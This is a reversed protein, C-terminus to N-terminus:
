MSWWIVTKKGQSKTSYKIQIKFFLKDTSISTLQISRSMSKAISNAKCASQPIMKFECIRKRESSQTDFEELNAIRDYVDFREDHNSAEFDERPGLHFLWIPQNRNPGHRRLEQERKSEHPLHKNNYLWARSYPRARSISFIHIDKTIATIDKYVHEMLLCYWTLSYFNDKYAPGESLPAPTM